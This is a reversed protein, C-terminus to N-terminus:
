KCVLVTRLNISNNNWDNNYGYVIKFVYDPYYRSSVLTFRNSCIIDSTDYQETLVIGSKEALYNINKCKINKYEEITNPYEWSLEEDSYEGTTVFDAMAQQQCAYMCFSAVDDGGAENKANDIATLRAQLVEDYTTEIEELNRAVYFGGYKQINDLMSDFIEKEATSMNDLLVQNSTIDYSVNEFRTYYDSPNLTYFDVFCTQYREPTVPIWVYEKNTEKNRIMLGDDYHARVYTNDEVTREWNSTGYTLMEYGDPVKPYKYSYVELINSDLEDDTYVTADKLNNIKVKISGTKTVTPTGTSYDYENAVFTYTGNNEITFTASTYPDLYKESVTSGEYNVYPSGFYDKLSITVEVEGYAETVPSVTATLGIEGTSDYVVVLEGDDEDIDSDTNDDGTNDEDFNDPNYPDNSDIFVLEGDDIIVRKDFDTKSLNTIIDYITGEKEVGNYVIGKETSIGSGSGYGADLLAGNYNGIKAYDDKLLQDSHFLTLEDKLTAFDNKLKAKKANSIVNTSSLNLIVAAALIIIVVITIILTILSIGKNLKKSM